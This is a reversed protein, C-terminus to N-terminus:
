SIHYVDSLKCSLNISTLYGVYVMEKKSFSINMWKEMNFKNTNEDIIERVKDM